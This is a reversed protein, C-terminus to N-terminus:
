GTTGLERRRKENLERHKRAIERPSMKKQPQNKLNCVKVLTLLRNLHWYQCEFPIQLAVMWYYILEATIFEGSGGRGPPENFTTATQKAMIYENIEELNKSSLKGWVEPPVNETQTMAQIYWLTEEPTKDEQSLFAKEFHSEWKSLSVLSHELQLEFLELSDSFMKTKPDFSEEASLTVQITLM